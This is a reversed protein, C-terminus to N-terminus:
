LLSQIKDFQQSWGIKSPASVILPVGVETVTVKTKGKSECFEVVVTIENPWRGPVPAQAGPIARGNEDAFALTSVIEKGPVVETYSGTNWVTKGRASTMGWLYSGGERVEDREVIGTYGKPGWWKKVTDADTWVKWVEAAPANFIRETSVTTHFNWAILVVVALVVAIGGLIRWIM